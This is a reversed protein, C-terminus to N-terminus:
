HISQIILYKINLGNFVFSQLCDKAEETKLEFYEPTIIPIMSDPTSPTEHHLSSLGKSLLPSFVRGDEISLLTAACESRINNSSAMM